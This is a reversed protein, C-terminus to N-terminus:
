VNIEGYINKTLHQHKKEDKYSKLSKTKPIQSKIYRSLTGRRSITVARGDKKIFGAYEERLKKQQQDKERMLRLRYSRWEQETKTDLKQDGKKLRDYTITFNRERKLQAVTKHDPMLYKLGEDLAKLHKETFYFRHVGLGDRIGIKGIKGFFPLKTSVPKYFQLTKAIVCLDDLVAEPREYCTEFFRYECVGQGGAMYNIASSKGTSIKPGRFGLGRSKFSASGLFYLAPLFHEMANVFNNLCKSDLNNGAPYVGSPNNLIALHMGAGNTDLGGGIHESLAKFANIFEIAYFAKELPLTFTFESGVSGDPYFLSFVLADKAEKSVAAFIFAACESDNMTKTKKSGTQSCNKCGFRGWGRCTDCVLKRTGDIFGDSCERCLRYGRGRCTLCSVHGDRRNLNAELEVKFHTGKYPCKKIFEIPAKIYDPGIIEVKKKVVGM